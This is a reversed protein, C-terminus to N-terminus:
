KKLDKVSVGFQEKNHKEGLPEVHVMIDYVNEIKVKINNEVEQAIVHAEHVCISGEVEIDLDIIYTGAIQRIRVRHPNSAGDVEEVAQFIDNYVEEDKVGDMLSTNSEMFIQFASKIIWLSVLFATISDLIPLNFFYVAALGVLVSLSILVDNQMNKGNASLMISNVKKGKKRLYYSLFLKGIISIITIIIALNGPEQGSTQNLINKASSIALQGGAFFIIFSLVKAAIDDAKQYGFPYKADPPRSIIKATFLTIISTLIDTASDIGDGIVALSGTIVGITIKLASLLANGIIAIWSAYLIEKNRQNTGLKM